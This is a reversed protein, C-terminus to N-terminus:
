VVEENYRAELNQYRGILLGVNEVIWNNDDKIFLQSYPLDVGDICKCPTAEITMVFNADLINAIAYTGDTTPDVGDTSYVVAGDSLLAMRDNISFNGSIEDPTGVYVVDFNGILKNLAAFYMDGAKVSPDDPSIVCGRVNMMNTLYKDTIVQM